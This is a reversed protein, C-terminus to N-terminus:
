SFWHTGGGKFTPPHHARFRQLNSMGGLGGAVGAQVITAVTAGMTEMFAQPDFVPPPPVYGWPRGRRGRGHSAM